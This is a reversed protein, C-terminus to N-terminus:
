KRGTKLEEKKHMRWSDESVGMEQCMRKEEHTLEPLSSKTQARPKGSYSNRVGGVNPLSSSVSAAKRPATRNLSEIYNDITDFYEPSYQYDLKREKELQYDFKSVFSEVKKTLAENYYKSHPHFEPHNDIWDDRIQERLTTEVDFKQQQPQPAPKNAWEELNNVAHCAKNLNVMAETYAQVDQVELSRKVDEKAKQLDAYASKGYQYTQSSVSENLLGELENIRQLANLKEAREKYMKNRYARLDDNKKPKKDEKEVEEDAEEEGEVEEIPDTSDFAEEEEVEEEVPAEQPIEENGNLYRSPDKKVEDLLSKELAKIEDTNDMAGLLDTDPHPKFEM